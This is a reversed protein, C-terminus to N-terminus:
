KNIATIDITFPTFALKLDKHSGGLKTAEIAYKPDHIQVGAYEAVLDGFIEPAFTVSPGVLVVKAGACLTLLRPMTKNLLTEGTMYVWDCDALVYECAPDPIDDGNPRRELVTLDAVASIREVDKFHGIMGVKQGKLLPIHHDFCSGPFDYEAYKALREATNYWANLACQGISAKRYNWSKIWSAVDRLDKGAVDSPVIRAEPGEWYTYVTGASGNDASICTWTSVAYDEVKIGGGVGDILNDYLQWPNGM